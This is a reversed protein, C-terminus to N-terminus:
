TNKRSLEEIRKEAEQFYRAYSRRCYRREKKPRPAEEFRYPGNVRLFDILGLHIAAKPCFFACRSCLICHTSFRVREKRLVINRSPCHQVCLGCQICKRDAFFMKGLLPSAKQEVRLLFLPLRVPFPTKTAFRERGHIRRADLPILREATQWMRYAMWESHRFVMDYPMLYHFEGAISYGKRRLISSLKASSHRNLRLNEGSTKLVYIPAQRPLTELRRAFDLIWKPANFAHIPYGLVLVDFSSLDEGGEELNWLVVEDELSSLCDKMKELCRRTNGTGSFYVMAVKM